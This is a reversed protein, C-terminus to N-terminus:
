ANNATKAGRTTRASRRRLVSMGCLGGGLLVATGPEPVVGTVDFINATGATSIMFGITNENIVGQGGSVLMEGVWLLDASTSGGQLNSGSVSGFDWNYQSFAGVGSDIAVAAANGNTNPAVGGNVTSYSAGKPNNNLGMLDYYEPNMFSIPGIAAQIRDIAASGPDLTISFWVFDQVTKDTSNDLVSGVGNALPPPLTFHGAVVDITGFVGSSNNNSADITISNQLTYSWASATSAIGITSLLAAICILAHRWSTASKGNGRLAAEFM